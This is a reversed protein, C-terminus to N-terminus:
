SISLRVRIYNKVFKIINIYINIDNIDFIIIFGAVNSDISYPFVYSDSTSYLNNIVEYDNKSALHQILTDPLSMGVLTKNSSFLVKERDTIAYNGNIIGYLSRDIDSLLDLNQNVLSKKDLIISKDNIRFELNEGEKISLMKRIEMPIVIRGLEDVKRIIGSNNM